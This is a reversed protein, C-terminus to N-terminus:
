ELSFDVNLNLLVDVAVGRFTAPIFRAQRAAALAASDLDARGASRVVDAEIVEGEKSILLKVIVCAEIGKIVADVPYIPEVNNLLRPATDCEAAQRPGEPLSEDTEQEIIPAEIIVENDQPIVQQEPPEQVIVPIPRPESKPRVKRISKIEKKPEPHVLDVFELAIYEREKPVYRESTHAPFLTFLVLAHFLLAILLAVRTRNTDDEIIMTRPKQGLTGTGSFISTM